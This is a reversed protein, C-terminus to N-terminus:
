TRSCLREFEQEFFWRQVASLEVTGQSPEQSVEVATRARSALEALAHVQDQQKSIQLLPIGEGAIFRGDLTLVADGALPLPFQSRAVSSM